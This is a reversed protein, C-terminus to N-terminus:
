PSAGLLAAMEEASVVRDYIRVDDLQGDLAWGFGSNDGAARRAGLCVDVGNTATGSSQPVGVAVGDVWLQQTGSAADHVVAVLHWLGDDVRVNQLRGQINARGGINAYLHSRGDRDNDYLYLQYQRQGLNAHAKGVITGEAGAPVRIWAMLTLDDTAPRLDLDVPQGVVVAQRDASDFDLAGGVAGASWIPAAADGRLQGDNAWAADAAVTGAGDDLRWHGMLGVTADVVTVTVDDSVVSAGDDATLRFVYTGAASFSASTSPSTPHSLYAAGPGSVLGWSVASPSPLGDDVVSGDLIVDEVDLIARAPGADVTPPTDVPQPSGLAASEAPELARGYVRVDDLWGQFYRNAPSVSRGGLVLDVVPDFRGGGQADFRAVEGDVDIRTGSGDVAVVVHHWDGDDFANPGPGPVDLYRGGPDDADRLVTRLQDAGTGPSGTEPLYVNLSHPVDFAGHSFLYQFSTGVLDVARFWLAVSLETGLDFDPVTVRDGVGDFYLAGGSRGAPDFSPGQLVGHRGAGSVDDASGDDFSWHALLGAGPDAVDVTVADHFREVGDDVELRLRYTGPAAFTVGTNLATPNAIAAMGAPGSALRWEVGFTPALGSGALSGSLAAAVPASSSLAQDAGASVMSAAAWAEAHFQLNEIGAGGYLAGSSHGVGPVVQYEHDLGLAALEDRLAEADVRFGDLDGVWIRLAPEDIRLDDQAQTFRQPEFGGGSMSGAAYRSPDANLYRSVARSGLSFGELSRHSRDAITRWNFDVHAVFDRTVLDTLDDNWSGNPSAPAVLIMPPVLGQAIAADMRESASSGPTSLGALTGALDLHDGGSGHLWYVAPYRANNGPTYYGPPTYILYDVTGWAPSTYVHEALVGASQGGSQTWGATLILLILAGLVRCWGVRCEAISPVFSAVEVSPPVPQSM